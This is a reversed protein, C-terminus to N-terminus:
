ERIAKHLVVKQTQINEDTHQPLQPIEGTSAIQRTKERIDRINVPQSSTFFFFIEYGPADDLKFAFPLVHTGAPIRTSTVGEDPYHQSIVGRGDVSLIVGFLQATNYQIQVEDGELVTSGDPLLFPVSESKKYLRLTPNSSAGPPIYLAAPYQGPSSFPLPPPSVMNDITRARCTLLYFCDAVDCLLILAGAVISLFLAFRRRRPVSPIGPHDAHTNAHHDMEIRSVGATHFVTVEWQPKVRKVGPRAAAAPRIPM